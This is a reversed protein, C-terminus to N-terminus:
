FPAWIKLVLVKLLKSFHNTIQCPHASGAKIHCVKLLCKEFKSSAMIEGNIKTDMLCHLYNEDVSICNSHKDNM